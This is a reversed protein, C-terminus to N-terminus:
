TGKLSDNLTFDQDQDLCYANQQKKKYLSSWLRIQEVETRANMIM